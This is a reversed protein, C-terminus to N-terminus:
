AWSKKVEYIEWMLRSRRRAKLRGWFGRLPNLARGGGESACSLRGSTAEYLNPGTGWLREM